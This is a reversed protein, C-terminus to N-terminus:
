RTPAWNARGPACRWAALEKAIEGRFSKRDADHIVPVFCGPTPIWPSESTCM